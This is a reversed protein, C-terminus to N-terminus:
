QHLLQNTSFADAVMSFSFNEFQKWNTITSTLWNWWHELRGLDEHIWMGRGEYEGEELDEKLVYAKWGLVM